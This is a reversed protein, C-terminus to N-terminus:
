YQHAQGPHALNGSLAHDGLGFSRVGPWLLYTGAILAAYMTNEIFREM